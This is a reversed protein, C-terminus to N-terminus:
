KIKKIPQNQLAWRQQDSMASGISVFFTNDSGIEAPITMDPNLLRVTLSALQVPAGSHTYAVSSSADASTYTGYNQYRSVIGSIGHFVKSQQVLNSLFQGQLQVLFYASTMVTVDVKGGLIEYSDNATTDQQNFAEASPVREFHGGNKVIFSDLGCITDTVNIAPVLAQVGAFVPGTIVDTFGIHTTTYSALMSKPLNLTGHWFDSPQLSKFFVGGNSTAYFLKGDVQGFPPTGAYSTNVRVVESGTANPSYIPTHAYTFKFSKTVDSYEFAVQSAGIFFGNANVTTDFQCVELGDERVLYYDALAENSSSQLYPTNVWADPTFAKSKNIESMQETMVSALASPTYEGAPITFHDHFESPYYEGADQGVPTTNYGSVYYDFDSAQDISGGGLVFGTGHFKPHPDSKHGEAIMTDESGWSETPNQAVVNFQADNVGPKATSGQTRYHIVYTNNDKNGGTGGGPLTKVPETSPRCVLNVSVFEFVDAQTGTCLVYKMNDPQRLASNQAHNNAQGTGYNFKNSVWNTVYLHTTIHVILDGGDEGAVKLLGDSSNTTDVFANRLSITWSRM